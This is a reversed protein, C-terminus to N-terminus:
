YYRVFNEDTLAMTESNYKFINRDVVGTTNGESTTARVAFEDALQRYISQMTETDRQEKPNLFIWEPVVDEPKKIERASNVLLNGKKDLYLVRYIGGACCKCCGGDFNVELVPEKVEDLVRAKATACCPFCRMFYGRNLVEIENERRLTYTATIRTLCCDYWHTKGYKLVWEKTSYIENGGTLQKILFGKDYTGKASSISTVSGSGSM